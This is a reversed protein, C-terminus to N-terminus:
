KAKGYNEAIDGEAFLVLEPWWKPPTKMTDLMFNLAEEAEAEKVILIVEDHVTHSIPYQKSIQLMQGVLVQRALHQVLNECGLGGYIKRRFRGEGFWWEDGEQHLKHYRLMGHPTVIGDQTTVCLEWPDVPMEKGDHINYLADDCLEWGHTIERYVQRWRKVVNQAEQDTLDYGEKKAGEKFKRWGMGFGLGLQVMKSFQRQAKTVEDKSIGYFKSAFEKYLDAEADEAYLDMSSKVQWLFHNVRLEIGSLDAVVIAHGKPAILCNRLADSPKPEKPNVRPLNQQNAKFGGSMRWTHAGCYNLAIPMRGGTAAAMTLFTEIRSELITSKIGLRTEAAAEVLPNEHELLALMGEDQKAFAYTDKGTTPSLKMPPEVGQGRLLEAFKPNSMLAKKLEVEWELGMLERLTEVAEEKRRREEVLATKLLPTDVRFKPQVLMRITMDIIQMERPPLQPLLHKFLRRCLETDQGAYETIAARQAESWDKVYTGETNTAELSGKRGLNLYDCLKALSGGAESRYVPRAMALTCGYKAPRAGFRWATIMHDFGSGNHAVILTDSLDQEAWWDRITDEGILTTVPANDYAYSLVQIEVKPHMVYACPNMKTLTLGTKRNWATEYDYYLIRM